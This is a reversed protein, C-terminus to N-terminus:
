AFLIAFRCKHWIIASIAVPKMSAGRIKEEIKDLLIRRVLFRQVGARGEVPVSLHMRAKSAVPTTHIAALFTIAEWRFLNEPM